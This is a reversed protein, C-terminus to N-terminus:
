TVYRAPLIWGMFLTVNRYSEHVYGRTWAETELTPEELAVLNKLCEMDIGQTKMDSQNWSWKIVSYISYIFTPYKQM